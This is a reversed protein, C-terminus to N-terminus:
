DVYGLARLRERIKEEDEQSLAQNEKEYADIKERVILVLYKEITIGVERAIEQMKEYLDDPLEINM